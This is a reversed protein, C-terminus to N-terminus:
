TFYLSLLFSSIFADLIRFVSEFLFFFFFVGDKWLINIKEVLSRMNALM